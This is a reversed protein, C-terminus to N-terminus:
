AGGQMLRQPLMQNPAAMQHDQYRPHRSILGGILAGCVEGNCGLGGRFAGMAKTVEWDKKGLKEQGVM